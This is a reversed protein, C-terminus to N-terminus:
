RIELVSGIVGGRMTAAFAKDVAGPLTQYNLMELELSCAKALETSKCRHGARIQNGDLGTREDVTVDSVTADKRARPCM